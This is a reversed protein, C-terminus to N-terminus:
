TFDSIKEHPPLIYVFFEGYQSLVKDFTGYICVQNM